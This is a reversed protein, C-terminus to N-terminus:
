IINDIARVCASVKVSLPCVNLASRYLQIESNWDSTRTVVRYSFLFFLVMPFFAM